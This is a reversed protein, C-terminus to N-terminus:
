KKKGAPKTPGKKVKGEASSNKRKGEKSWLTNGERVTSVKNGARSKVIRYTRGGPTVGTKQTNGFRDTIKKAM